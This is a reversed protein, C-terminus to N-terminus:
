VRKQWISPDRRSHFVSVVVLQNPEVRYYIVYPFRRVVASRLNRYVVAHMNPMAAIANFAREVAGAFRVGLGRRKSEYWDFAEDYDIQAEPTLVVALSM